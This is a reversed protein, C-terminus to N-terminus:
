GSKGSLKRSIEDANSIVKEIANKIDILDEKRVNLVHGPLWLGTEYCLKEANPCLGKFYKIERGILPCKYPCIPMSKPDSFVPNMYLPWMYGGTLPIGEANVAKIFLEKSLGVKEPYYDILYLHYAHKVYPAVYGPSIGDIDKLISTLYEANRRREETIKPLRKLQERLIAAQMETMRYNWGLANHFYWPKDRLRGHERLSYCKEALEEDNTTIIGGEGATMNKSEQFSFIAMDGIGGVIKGKYEALHAQAADEIVYLGHKEAIEMIEDMDAPHGALHVPIIARTKDSIKREIDGPDINRTRLDVDAFIPITNNHLACTASAIFTYPTTIIEDGPKPNIVAVCIDLAATGSSVAIAHKVNMMKAFEKEFEPVEIGRYMSAFLKGRKLVRIVANIEEDGIIPWRGLPKSRVPEGGLIAPKNNLFRM